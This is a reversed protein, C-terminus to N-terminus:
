THLMVCKGEARHERGRCYGNGGTGGGGFLFLIGQVGVVVRVALLVVSVLVVMLVLVAMVVGSVRVFTEFGFLALGLYGLQGGANDNGVRLSQTSIVGLGALYDALVGHIGEQAQAIGAIVAVDHDGFAIAEKGVVGPADGLAVAIVVVVVGSLRRKAVGRDLGRVGAVHDVVVAKGCQKRIAIAYRFNVLGFVHAFVIGLRDIGYLRPSCVVAHGYRQLIARYNDGLSGLVLAM